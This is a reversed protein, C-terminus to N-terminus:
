SIGKKAQITIINNYFNRDQIM